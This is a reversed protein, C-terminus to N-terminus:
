HEAQSNIFRDPELVLSVNRDKDRFRNTQKSNLGRPLSLWAESHVVTQGLMALGVPHIKKLFYHSVYSKFFRHSKINERTANPSLQQFVLPQLYPLSVM